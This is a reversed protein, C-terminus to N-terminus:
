LLEQQKTEVLEKVLLSLENFNYPKYLLRKIGTQLAENKDVVSSFGTCLIIPLTSQFQALKKALELGTMMPMTQDTIIIDFKQPNDQLLKLAELGNNCTTIEYGIRTFKETALATLMLEDDVFLIHGTGSYVSIDTPKEQNDSLSAVPFFLSFSAGETHDDDLILFGGHKAAIGHTIALGMGTGKGFEKTTFYPDFIKEKIEAPIGCGNDQITMRIYPGSHDKYMFPFDESYVIKKQLTIRIYGKNEDLAHLSNTCLNMVIQHIQAPNANVCELNKEFQTEIEISTPISPRLMKLADTVIKELDVQSMEVEAQRSFALIQKVLEKARIGAKEIELLYSSLESGPQVDDIAIEAYGLIATLINNFDHAIGGALSGVAEMKHAQQLKQQLQINEIQATKQETIDTLMGVLHKEDQSQEILAMTHYVWIEQGKKNILRKEQSVSTKIGDILSTLNEETEEMDDPHTLSLLTKGALDEIHYGTIETWKNNITQFSLDKNILSTGAADAHFVTRFMAQSSLIDQERQEIKKTMSLISDALTNFESYEIGSISNEYDGNAIKKTNDLFKQLTRQLATSYRISIALSLIFLFLTLTIVVLFLKQVPFYTQKHPQSIMISWGTQQIFGIHCVFEKGDHTLNQMFITNNDLEKLHNYNPEMDRQLVKKQSSHALYTGTQDTVSVIINETESLDQTIEALYGLNLHATIIGRGFPVSLATVPINDPSSIFVSSWYINGNAEINTFFDRRSLDSKLLEKDKPFVDTVYGQEDTLIFKLFYDHRKLLEDFLIETGKNLGRSTITNKLSDLDYLPGELYREIQNIFIKSLLLNKSNIEEELQKASFYLVFTGLLIVPLTSLPIFFLFLKWKISRQKKM